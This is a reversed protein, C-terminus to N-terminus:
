KTEPAYVWPLDYDFRVAIDKPLFLAEWVYIAEPGTNDVKLSPSYKGRSCSIHCHEGLAFGATGMEYFPQGQLIIEGVYIDSIDNDHMFMCTMYDYSGDAYLVESTSEVWVCNGCEENIAAVRCTFPAVISEGDNVQMDIANQNQHSYIDFASQTVILVSAPYMAYEGGGVGDGTVGWTSIDWEYLYDKGGFSTLEAPTGNSHKKPIALYKSEDTSLVIYKTGKSADANKIYFTAAKDGSPDYLGLSSTKRDYGVARSYGGRSCAAFLTYSGDNNM